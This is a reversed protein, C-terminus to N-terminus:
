GCKTRGNRGSLPLSVVIRCGKGPGSRLQFTGNEVEVRHRINRFGVGGSKKDPDFGVGDDEIRLQVRGETHLIEVTVTQAMAYKLTNNLQEQIIRYLMLKQRDTLGADLGPHQHLCLRFPAAVRISEALQAVAYTFSGYRFSPGALRHSIQRVETLVTETLGLSNGIMEDRADHETKAVNLYLKLTGILQSVNDHLEKGIERREAEQAELIAEGVLQQRELAEKQKQLNKKDTIDEQIGIYHTLTGDEAFIPTLSFYNWFLQGTKRYNVLEVQVPQQNQIAKRITDVVEPDTEPGQLYRCNRGISEQATYGTIKVFGKNVYILPNDPLSVDSITIGENANDVAKLLVSTLCQNKM